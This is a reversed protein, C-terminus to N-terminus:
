LLDRAAAIAADLKGADYADRMQKYLEQFLDIRLEPLHNREVSLWRESPCKRAPGKMWGRAEIETQLLNLTANIQPKTLPKPPRKAKVQAYATHVTIDGQGVREFLEPDSKMVAVAMTVYTHSTSYILAMENATRTGWGGNIGPYTVREHRLTARQEGPQIRGAERREIAAPTLWACKIAAHYARQSNTLLALQESTPAWPPITGYMDDIYARIYASDFVHSWWKM